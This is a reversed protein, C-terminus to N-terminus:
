LARTAILWQTPVRFVAALAAPAKLVRQAKPMQEANSRQCKADARSRSGVIKVPPVLRLRLRVM